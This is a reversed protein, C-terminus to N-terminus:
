FPCTGPEGYHYLFIKSEYKDSSPYVKRNGARASIVVISIKLHDEYKYIDEISGPRNSPIGVEQRIRIAEDRKSIVDQIGLEITCGLLKKM